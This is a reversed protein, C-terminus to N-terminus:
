ANVKVKKTAKAKEKKMKESQKLKMNKAKLKEKEKLAKLKEKEKLAKLKEKEKLAKLKEKEKMAKAKVKEKIAKAKEKEKLAKAQEKEKPANLKDEIAKIGVQKKWKDESGSAKYKKMDKVYTAMKTEYQEQYTAKKPAALAAWAKKLELAAIKADIMYAFPASLPRKPRNPDRKWLEAKGSEQYKKMDKRYAGAPKEAAKEYTAKDKATMKKWQGGAGKAVETVSLKGNKKRFDASFLFFASTPRRPREPDRGRKKLVVAAVAACAMSWARGGFNGQSPRAFLGPAQLRSNGAVLPLPQGPHPSFFAL